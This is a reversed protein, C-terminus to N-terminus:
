SAERDPPLFKRAHTAAKRKRSLTEESYRPRVRAGAAQCLPELQNLPCSLVAESQGLQEIRLDPVKTQLRRVTSKIAGSTIWLGLKEVSIMYLHDLGDHGLANKGRLAIYEDGCDDRRVYYRQKVDGSFKIREKHMIM